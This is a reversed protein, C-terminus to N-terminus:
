SEDKGDAEDDDLHVRSALEGHWVSWYHAHDYLKTGALVLRWAALRLAEIKAPDVLSRNLYPFDEGDNPTNGIRRDVRLIKEVAEGLWDTMNAMLENESFM